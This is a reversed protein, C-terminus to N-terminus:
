TWDGAYVRQYQENENAVRQARITVPGRQANDPSRLVSRAKASREPDVSLAAARAHNAWRLKREICVGTHSEITIQFHRAHPWPPDGADGTGEGQLDHAIAAPGQGTWREERERLLDSGGIPVQTVHVTPGRDLPNRSKTAPTAETENEEGVTIINKSTTRASEIMVHMSDSEHRDTVTICSPPDDSTIAALTNMIHILTSTNM